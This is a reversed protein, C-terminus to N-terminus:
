SRFCPTEEPSTNPNAMSSHFVRNTYVFTWVGYFKPLAGGPLQRQRGPYKSIPTESAQPLEKFGSSTIALGASDM